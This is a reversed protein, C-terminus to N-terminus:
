ATVHKLLPMNTIHTEESMTKIYNTLDEFGTM